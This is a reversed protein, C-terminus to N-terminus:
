NVCPKKMISVPLNWNERLGAITRELQQHQVHAEARERQLSSEGALSVEELQDRLSKAINSLQNEEASWQARNKQLDESMDFRLNEMEERLKM